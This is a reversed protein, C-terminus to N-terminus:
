YDGFPDEQCKPIDKETEMVSIFGRESEHIISSPIQPIDLAALFINMQQTAEIGASM